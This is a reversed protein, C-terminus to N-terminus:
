GFFWCALLLTAFLIPGLLSICLGLIAARKQTRSLGAVCFCFGVVSLIVGLFVGIAGAWILPNFPHIASLCVSGVVLIGLGWISVKLGRYGDKNSKLQRKLESVPTTM